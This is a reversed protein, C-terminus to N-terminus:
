KQSPPAHHPAHYAVITPTYAMSVEDDLDEEDELENRNVAGFGRPQLVSPTGDASPGWYVTEEIVDFTIPGTPVVPAGDYDDDDDDDDDFEIAGGADTRPKPVSQAYEAGLQGALDAGASWTIPPPVAEEDVSWPADVPRGEVVPLAEDDCWSEFGGAVVSVSAYGADLLRGAAVRSIVGLDCLLLVPQEPPCCAAVTSEFHECFRFLMGLTGPEGAPVSLADPPRQASHQARTRLDLLVPASAASMVEFAAAPSLAEIAEDHSAGASAAASDDTPPARPTRPTLLHYPHSPPLGVRPISGEAKPCTGIHQTLWRPFVVPTRAYRAM